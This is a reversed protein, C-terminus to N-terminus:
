KVKPSVVFLNIFLRVDDIDKISLDLEDCRVYWNKKSAVTSENTTLTCYSNVVYKYYYYDDKDGSEHIPVIVKEFGEEILEEETM